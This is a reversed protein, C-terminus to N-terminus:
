SASKSGSCPLVMSFSFLASSFSACIFFLLLKMYIYPTSQLSEARRAFLAEPHSM